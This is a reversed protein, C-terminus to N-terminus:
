AREQTSPALRAAILRWDDTRPVLMERFSVRTSRVTSGLLVLATVAYGISSSLAAGELKWAPILVLNLGINVALGLAAAISGLHFQGRAQTDSALLLGLSAVVVGPLLIM